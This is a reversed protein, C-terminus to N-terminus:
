NFIYQESAAIDTTCKTSDIFRSLNTNLVTVCYRAFITMPFFCYHLIVTTVSNIKKWHCDKFPPTHYFKFFFFFGMVCWFINRFVSFTALSCVVASIILPIVILFQIVALNNFQSLCKNTLKTLLLLKLNHREKNM